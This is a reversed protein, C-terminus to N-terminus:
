RALVKAVADLDSPKWIYAEVKDGCAWLSGLWVLQDVSPKGKESKLEAFVVRPARVMVLDPFGPASRDSRYTHYALWGLRHALELVQAQWEAETIALLPHPRASGAGRAGPSIQRRRTM